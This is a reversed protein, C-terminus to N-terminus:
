LLSAATFSRHPLTTRNTVLISRFYSFDFSHGHIIDVVVVEVDDNTEMLIMVEVLYMVILRFPNRRKGRKILRDLEVLDIQSAIEKPIVFEHEKQTANRNMTEPDKENMSVNGERMTMVVKTKKQVITYGQELQSQGNRVHAQPLCTGILQQLVVIVRVPNPDINVLQHGDHHHHANMGDRFELLHAVLDVNAVVFLYMDINVQDVIEVNTEIIMGIITWKLQIDIWLDFIRHNVPAVSATSLDKM